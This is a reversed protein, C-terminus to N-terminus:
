IHGGRTLSLRDVHHTLAHIADEGVNPPSFSLLCIVFDATKPM